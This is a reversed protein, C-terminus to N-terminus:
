FLNWQTKAHQLLVIFIVTTLNSYIIVGNEKTQTDIEYTQILHIFLLVDFDDFLLMDFVIDVMLHVFVHLDCLM